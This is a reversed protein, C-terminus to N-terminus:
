KLKTLAITIASPDNNKIGEALADVIEKKKEKKEKNSELWTSFILLILQLIGSIITTM